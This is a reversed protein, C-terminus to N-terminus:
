ASFHTAAYSFPTPPIGIPALPTRSCLFYPLVGIRDPRQSATNNAATPFLEVAFSIFQACVSLQMSAGLRRQPMSIFYM